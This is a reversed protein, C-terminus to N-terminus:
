CTLNVMQKVESKFIDMSFKKAKEHCRFPDVEIEDLQKIKEILARTTYSKFFLGTEGEIITERVGGGDYAIVPAGSANAEIPVIGFDEDRVPFLVAKCRHYLEWKHENSVFGLFQVYNSADSDRVLKKLRKLDAGQGAIILPRKLTICAKIAIDIGKYAEIRGFYLYWEARTSIHRNFVVHSLDVPPYIVKSSLGYFREIRQSVESSISTIVHAKQAAQKDLTRWKKHLRNELLFKYILFSIKYSKETARTNLWLFRPPSLIHLWLKTNEHIDIYKNFGDSLVIVLDFINFDLSHYANPLLPILEQNLLKKFPLMQLYSGIVKKNKFYKKIFKPNYWATYIPADPFVDSFEKLLYEAGGWLFLPHSVLAIKKQLM